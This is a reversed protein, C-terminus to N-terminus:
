LDSPALQYEHVVMYLPDEAEKVLKDQVIQVAFSTLAARVPKINTYPPKTSFMETSERHLRGYPHKMWNSIIAAPPYKGDGNFFHQMVAAMQECSAQQTSNSSEGARPFATGVNERYGTFDLSTHFLLKDPVNVNKKKPQPTDPNEKYKRKQSPQSPM